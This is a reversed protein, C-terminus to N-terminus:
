ESPLLTSMYTAIARLVYTRGWSRWAGALWDRNAFTLVNFVIPMPTTLGADTWVLLLLMALRLPQYSHAHMM